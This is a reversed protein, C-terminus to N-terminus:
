GVLWPIFWSLARDRICMESGVLSSDLDRKGEQAEERPKYAPNLHSHFPILERALGCALSHLEPGPSWM